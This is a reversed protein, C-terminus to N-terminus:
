RLSLLTIKPPRTTLMSAAPAWSRPNSGPRLRRIKRAFFDKPPSTFGDTGHWLNAAHLLVRHNVHFDSECALNVAMERGYKTRWEYPDRMDRSTSHRQLHRASSFPPAGLVQLQLGLHSPTTTRHGHGWHIDVGLDPSAVHCTVVTREKRRWAEM